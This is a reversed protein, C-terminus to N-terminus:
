ASREVDDVCHELEEEVYDALFQAFCKTLCRQSLNPIQEAICTDLYLKVLMCRAGKNLHRQEYHPPEFGDKSGFIESFKVQKKL